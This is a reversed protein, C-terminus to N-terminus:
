LLVSAVYVVGMPLFKGCRGQGAIREGGVYKWVNGEM